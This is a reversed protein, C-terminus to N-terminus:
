SDQTATLAFSRGRSFQADPLHIRIFTHGHMDIDHELIVLAGYDDAMTRLLGILVHGLASPGQCRLIYSNHDVETLDLRPLRLDPMALRARGPLEELSHLFDVFGVGGFRLLRRLRRQSPHSLLFTGLDELLAEATRNLRRSAAALVAHTQADPYRIMREFGDPSIGADMAVARWLSRGYTGRLFTQISRNFLGHM